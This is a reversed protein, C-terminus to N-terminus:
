RGDRGTARRYGYGRVIGVDRVSVEFVPRGIRRAYGATWQAGRTRSLPSTICVLVDCAEAILKNRPMYGDRWAQTRPRYVQTAIDRADAEEVAITDAGEAGGSIVLSPKFEELAFRVLERATSGDAARNGVIALKM